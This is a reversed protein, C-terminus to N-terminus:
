FDCCVHLYFLIRRMILATYPCLTSSVSPKSDGGRDSEDLINGFFDKSQAKSAGDEGYTLRRAPHHSRKREGGDGPRLLSPPQPRKEEAVSM